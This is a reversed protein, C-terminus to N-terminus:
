RFTASNAFCRWFYLVPTTSQTLCVDFVFFSVPCYERLLTSCRRLHCCCLEQVCDGLKRTQGSLCTVCIRRVSLDFHGFSGSKNRSGFSSHGRIRILIEGRCLGFIHLSISSSSTCRSLFEYPWGNAPRRQSLFMSSTSHSFPHSFRVLMPIYTKVYVFFSPNNKNTLTSSIFFLCFRFMPGM